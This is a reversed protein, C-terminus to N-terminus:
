GCPSVEGLTEGTHLILLSFPEAAPTQTPVVEAVATPLPQSAAATPGSTPGPLGPGLTVASAPSGEARCGALLVAFLILVVGWPTGRRLTSRRM